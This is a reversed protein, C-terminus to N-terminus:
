IHYSYSDWLHVDTEGKLVSLAYATHLSVAILLAQEDVDFKNNHLSYQTDPNNENSTGVHVYVGKTDKLYESFDDSGLSIIRKQDTVINEKGVISSAVEYVEDFAIKDNILAAAFTEFETTAKGGHNVAIRNALEPIKRQLLDQTEYSFARITGELVADEAIINYATGSSIKGVGILAVEQPDIIQKVLTKLETVILSAIHLADIGQHEKSIHAGKGKVSIKFYDCSAADAGRSVAITGVPFDPSVHIGFARDVNEMINEALFYQSGRGFEEASQFVLLVEGAFTDSLSQLIKAAGLLAATHVDHGCAHMVNPNQSRYHASSKEQIPLADIDARLLIKNGNGQKGTIIGLVGTKGVRRHATGFSDLQEEIYTATEFEKLSLEPNKHLHRRVSILYDKEKEVNAKINM